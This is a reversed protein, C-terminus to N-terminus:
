FKRHNNNNYVLYHIDGDLNLRRAMVNLNRARERELNADAMNFFSKLSFKLDTAVEPTGGAVGVGVGPAATANGTTSDNDESNSNNGALAEIKNLESGGSSSHPSGSGSLPTHYYKYSKRGRRASHFPRLFNFTSASSSSASTVVSGTESSSCNSGLGGDSNNLIFTSFPNNAGEFDKPRPIFTDLSISASSSDNSDLSDRYPQQMSFQHYQQQHHSSRPPRGRAQKPRKVQEEPGVRKLAPKRMPLLLIQNRQKRSNSNSKHNSTKVNNVNVVNVGTSSSFIKSGPPAPPLLEKLGWFTAGKRHESGPKFRSKNSSLLARIYNPEIRSSKLVSHPCQLSKLKRKFFPIIASEIDHHKKSHIVTLNFLVLHLADVWGLPIREISEELSGSCLTCVFNYFRDGFLVMGLAPNRICKQHFWQQCRQCQLM